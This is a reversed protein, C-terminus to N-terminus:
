MDLNAHEVLFGATPSSLQAKGPLGSFLAPPKTNRKGKLKVFSMVPKTSRAPHAPIVTVFAEAQPLRTPALLQRAMAGVTTNYGTRVVMALPEDEADETNWVQVSDANSTWCLHANGGNCNWIVEISEDEANETNEAQM